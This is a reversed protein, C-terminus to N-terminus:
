SRMGLDNGERRSRLDFYLVSKIIQYFPVLFLELLLSLVFSLINLLIYKSGNMMSNIATPDTVGKQMESFADAYIVTNPSNALINLPITILFAVFLILMVRGVYSATLKWSRGISDLGGINNSEVAMPLESIFVAAAYRLLIYLFGLLGAVSFIVALIAGVPGSIQQAFFASIGVGISLVICAVILAAAGFLMLWLSLALFRWQSNGLVQSVDQLTEPRNILQQYASRSIMARNALYKGLCFLFAVLWLLVGVLVGLGQSAQSLLAGVLIAPIIALFSVILWGLSRLVLKFYDGFNSKLLTVTATVVNGVSLTGIPDVSGQRM